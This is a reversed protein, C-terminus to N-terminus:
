VPRLERRNRRITAQGCALQQRAIQGVTAALARPAAIVIAFRAGLPCSPLEATAKRKM